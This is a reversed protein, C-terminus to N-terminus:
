LALRMGQEMVGMDPKVHTRFTVTCYESSGGASGGRMIRRSGEGNDIYPDTQPESTYPSESDACTEWANGSMDYLGLENPLKEKVPKISLKSNSSHWVYDDLEYNNCGSYTNKKSVGKNGGRAAFEWEAETPLRFKRGEPLQSEFANNLKDIFELMSNYSIIVKPENGNGNFLLQSGMLADWLEVTTETEAIYYDSVTVKHAPREFGRGNKDGMEFSGGEVHIMSFSIDGLNFVIRDELSQVTIGSKKESTEIDEPEEANATDCESEDTIAGDESESSDEQLYVDEVTEENTDYQQEKGGCSTVLGIVLLVTLYHINKKM